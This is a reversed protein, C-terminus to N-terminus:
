VIGLSQAWLAIELRNSLNLKEFIRNIHTRCSTQKISLISCIEKDYYGKGIYRAILYEKRALHDPIRCVVGFGPCHGMMDCSPADSITTKGVLDPLSSLTGYRCGVYKLEMQEPETIGMEHLANTIKGCAKMESRFIARKEQCLDVYDSRNGDELIRLHGEHLYIEFGAEIGAPFNM